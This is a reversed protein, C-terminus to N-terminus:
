DDESRAWKPLEITQIEWQGPLIWTNTARSAALQAMITNNQQRGSTIDGVTLQYVFVDYPLSKGVVVFLWSAAKGTISEIGDLYWAAQRHYGYRAAAHSFGEPTPDKATKLDACIATTLDAHDVLWDPRCKCAIRSLPDTWRLTKEAVGHPSALLKAAIPHLRVQNSMAVATDLHDALIPTTGSAAAEASAAEWTRGKRARCSEPAVTYELDFRDPELVVTHVISGLLQAPSSPPMPITGAVYLGYYAAPSQRYTEKASNTVASTDRHYEASTERQTTGSADHSRM